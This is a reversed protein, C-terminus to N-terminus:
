GARVVTNIMTASKMPAVKKISRYVLGLTAEGEVVVVDGLEVEDVVNCEVVV